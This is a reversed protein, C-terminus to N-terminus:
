PKAYAELKSEKRGDDLLIYYVSISCRLLNKRNQDSGQKEAEEDELYLLTLKVSRVALLTTFSHTNALNETSQNRTICSTVVGM